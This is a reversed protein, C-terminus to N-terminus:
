TLLSFVVCATYLVLFVQMVDYDRSIPYGGVLFNVRFGLQKTFKRFAFCKELARERGHVIMVVQTHNNVLDCRQLAGIILATTQGTGARTAVQIFAHRTNKQANELQHCCINPSRLFHVLVDRGDAIPSVMHEQVLTPLTYDCHRLQEIIDPKLGM